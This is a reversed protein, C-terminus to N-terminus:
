IEFIKSESFFLKSSKKVRGNEFHLSPIKSRTSTKFLHPDSREPFVYKQPGCVMGSFLIKPTFVGLITRKKLLDVKKQCRATLGSLHAPASTHHLSLLVQRIHAHLPTHFPLASRKRFPFKGCVYIADINTCLQYKQGFALLQDYLGTCPFISFISFHPFNSNKGRVLNRFPIM